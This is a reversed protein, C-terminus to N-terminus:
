LVFHFCYILRSQQQEIKLAVPVECEQYPVAWHVCMIGCAFHIYTSSGWKWILMVLPRRSFCLSSEWGPTTPTWTNTNRLTQSGMVKWIIHRTSKALVIFLQWSQVDEVTPSSFSGTYTYHIHHQITHPKRSWYIGCVPLKSLVFCLLTCLTFLM